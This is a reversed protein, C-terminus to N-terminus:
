KARQERARNRRMAFQAILTATRGLDTITYFTNGSAIYETILRARLLAIIIRRNIGDAMCRPLGDRMRLLLRHQPATMFWVIRSAM